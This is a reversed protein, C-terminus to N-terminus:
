PRAEQDVIRAHPERRRGQQFRARLRGLKIRFVEKALTPYASPTFMISNTLFCEYTCHCRNKRIRRAVDGTRASHWIARFDYGNARLDGLPEDLLECPFVKGRSQIVASLAAAYCPLQPGEDRLLRTIIDQRVNQMASLLDGFPQGSYAAMADAARERSLKEGFDAYREIDFGTATMDRPSGTPGGFKLGKVRDSGGRVVLNTIGTAGLERKFYDYILDLKEANRRQVTIAVNANFRPYERSLKLLERYTYTAKEFLGPTNRIADHDEGIGDISVDVAFDLKPCRDLVRRASEVVRDTLSGNTPIGVNLVGCKRHFLEIIEPLDKRLFPEGGSILLFLFPSMGSAIRDLEDLTLDNGELSTVGWLCHECRATCLDTVFLVVYLPDAGRKTLAYRAFRLYDSHRM